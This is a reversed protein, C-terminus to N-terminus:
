ASSGSRIKEQWYDLLDQITKKFPIQPSWGTETRIKSADGFM